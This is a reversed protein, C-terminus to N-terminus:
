RVRGAGGYNKLNAKKMVSDYQHSMLHSQVQAMFDMVVVVVILLSTGGFYVTVGYRRMWRYWEGESGLATVYFVLFVAAIAGLLFITRSKGPRCAALDDLWRRIDRWCLLLLVAVPIMVARFVYLGPGSRVARSISVCGDSYPFCVFRPEITGSGINLLFAAPVVLVPLLGALM